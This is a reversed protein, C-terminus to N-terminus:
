IEITGEKTWSDLSGRPEVYFVGVRGSGKRYQVEGETLLNLYPCSLM